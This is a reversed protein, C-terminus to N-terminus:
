LDQPIAFVGYQGGGRWVGKWGEVLFPHNFKLFSHTSFKLFTKFFCLLIYSNDEWFVSINEFFLLIKELIHCSLLLFSFYILSKSMVLVLASKWPHVMKFHFDSFVKFFLNSYIINRSFLVVILQGEECFYFSFSKPKKYSKESINPKINWLLTKEFSKDFQKKTLKRRIQRKQVRKKIM